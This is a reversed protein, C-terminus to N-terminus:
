NEIENQCVCSRIIEEVQGNVFISCQVIFAQVRLSPINDDFSFFFNFFILINQHLHHIDGNISHKDNFNNNGYSFTSFLFLNMCFRMKLYKTSICLEVTEFSLPQSKIFAYSLYGIHWSYFIRFDSGSNQNQKTFAHKQTYGCWLQVKTIRGVGHQYHKIIKVEHGTFM